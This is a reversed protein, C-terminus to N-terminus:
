RLVAFMDVNVKPPPLLALPLPLPVGAEPAAFEPCVAVVLKKPPGGLVAAGNPEEDVAVDFGDKNPFIVPPAPVPKNPPPFVPDFWVEPVDVGETSPPLVPLGGAGPGKEKL